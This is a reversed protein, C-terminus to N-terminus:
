KFLVASLAIIERLLHYWLSHIIDGLWNLSSSSLGFVSLDWTVKKQSDVQHRIPTTFPVKIRTFLWYHHSEMCDIYLRASTIVQMLDPFLYISSTSCCCVERPVSQCDVKEEEAGRVLEEMVGVKETGVHRHDPQQSSRKRHCTERQRYGPKRGGKYIATEGYGKRGREGCAHKHKWQAAETVMCGSVRDFGGTSFTPGWAATQHWCMHVWVKTGLRQTVKSQIGLRKTRGTVILEFM